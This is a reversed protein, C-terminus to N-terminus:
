EPWWSALTLLGMGVAVLGTSWILGKRWEQDLVALKEDIRGAFVKMDRVLGGKLGATM